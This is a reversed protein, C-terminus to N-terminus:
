QTIRTQENSVGGETEVSQQKILDAVSMLRDKLVVEFCDSLEEVAAEMDGDVPKFNRLYWTALGNVYFHMAATITAGADQKGVNEFRGGTLGITGLGLTIANEISKASIKFASKEAETLSFEDYKPQM